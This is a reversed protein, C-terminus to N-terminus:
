SCAKVQQMTRGEVSFSDLKSSLTNQSEVCKGHIVIRRRDVGLSQEGLRVSPDNALRAARGNARPDNLAQTRTQVLTQPSEDPHWHLDLPPASAPTPSLVRLESQAVPTSQEQPAEPPTAPATSPRLRPAAAAKDLRRRPSQGPAAVTRAPSLAWVSVRVPESPKPRVRQPAAAHMLMWLLAVHLLVTIGAVLHRSHDRRMINGSTGQDV